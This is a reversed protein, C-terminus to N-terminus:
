CDAEIKIAYELCAQKQEPTRFDTEDEDSKGKNCDHCLVQLNRPDLELEPYKSRPKIHDVHNSGPAQCCLCNNGLIRLINYRIRLWAKTDYFGWGRDLPKSQDKKKKVEAMFKKQKESRLTHVVDMGAAQIEERRADESEGPILRRRFLQGTEKEYNAILKARWGEPAPWRIGWESLTKAKWGNKSSRKALIEDPHVGMTIEDLTQRRKETSAPAESSASEPPAKKM